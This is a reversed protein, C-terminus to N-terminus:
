DRKPNETLSAAEKALNKRRRYYFIVWILLGAAAIAGMIGLEYRKLNGIFIELVNGFLYGGTAVAVTWVLVSTADLLLYKGPPVHGLGLGFPAVIRLGYLFRSMLIVPSHYRALLKELKDIRTQWQPHKLLITPGHWRGLFFYLLDGSLAGTFAALFVWPLQLYGLHAAIGALVLVTEGELLTGVVVAFYGYNRILEELTTM